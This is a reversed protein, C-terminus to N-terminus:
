EKSSLIELCYRTCSLGSPMSFITSPVLISLFRYRVVCSASSPTGMTTATLM